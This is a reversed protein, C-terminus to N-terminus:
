LISNSPFALIKPTDVIMGSAETNIEIIIDDLELSCRYLLELMEAKEVEDKSSKILLALSLISAVPKRIEHSNLWSIAKLKENQIGILTNKERRETIDYEISIYCELGGQADFVPAINLLVWYEKGSKTYNVLEATFSENRSLARHLQQVTVRKNKEGCLIDAHSKGLIDSEIYGTSETFAPNVWIINGAPNSIIVPNNVKSLIDGSRKVEIASRKLLDIDRLAGIVRVPEQEEDFLMYAQDYIYKYNGESVLIRYEAHWYKEQMSISLARSASIQLYDDPHIISLWWNFTVKEGEQTSRDLGNMQRSFSITNTALDMDYIIDGTVNSALDYRELAMKAKIDKEKEATIDSFYVALGEETPFASLSLWRNLVPSFDEMKIPIREEMAMKGLAYFPGDITGPLVEELGKGIVDGTIGTIIYFNANATTIVWNRNLTYYSDTISNLIAELRSYNEALKIKQATLEANVKNLEQEHLFKDTIDRAMVMVADKHNLQTKHANIHAYILTGDKKFHSWVGSEHLNQTMKLYSAKIKEMDEKPRIDMISMALFEKRSYGYARVAADNVAIFKFTLPDYFWIPNPNGEYISRYQNENRIIKRRINETLLFLLFGTFFIFFIRKGIFAGALEYGTSKTIWLLAKDGAVIWFIGAIVYIVPIRFRGNGM